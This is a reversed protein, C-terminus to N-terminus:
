KEETKGYYKTVIPIIRNWKTEKCYSMYINMEKSAATGRDWYFLMFEPM